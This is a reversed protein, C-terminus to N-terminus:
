QMDACTRSTLWCPWSYRTLGVAHVADPLASDRVSGLQAEQVDWHLVLSAPAHLM